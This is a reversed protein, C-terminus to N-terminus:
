EISRVRFALGINLAGSLLMYFGLAPNRRAKVWAKSKRLRLVMLPMFQFDQLDCEPPTMPEPLDTMAGGIWSWDPPCDRVQGAGTRRVPEPHGGVGPM